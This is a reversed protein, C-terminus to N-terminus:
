LYTDNTNVSFPTGNNVSVMYHDGDWPKGGALTTLEIEGNDGGTCQVDQNKVVSAGIPAPETLTVETWVTSRLGLVNDALVLCGNADQVAIWYTGAGRLIQFNQTNYIDLDGEQGAVMKSVVYASDVAPVVWYTYPETGGNAVITIEGNGGNCTPNDIGESYTIAGPSDIDFTKELSICGSATKVVVTNGTSPVAVNGKNSSSFSSGNFSYMYNAGTPTVTVDVNTGHCLASADPTVAITQLDAQVTATLSGDEYETTKVADGSTAQYLYQSNAEDWVLTTMYSNVTGLVAADVAFQLTVIKTTDNNPQIDTATASSWVFSVTGGIATVSLGSLESITSGSKVGVFDFKSNDFDLEVDMEKIKVFDRVYIDVEYLNSESYCESVPQIDAFTELTAQSEQVLVGRPMAFALLGVLMFSFLRTFSKRM